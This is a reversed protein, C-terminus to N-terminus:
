ANKNLEFLKFETIKENSKIAIRDALVNKLVNGKSVEQGQSIKLLKKSPNELIIFPTQNNNFIGMLRYNIGAIILIPRLDKKTKTQQDNIKKAIKPTKTNKKAQPSWDNEIALRENPHNPLFLSLVSNEAANKSELDNHLSVSNSLYVLTLLSLIIALGKM